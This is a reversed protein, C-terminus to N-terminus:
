RYKPQNENQRHDKLTVITPCIKPFLAKKSNDQKDYWICSEPISNISLMLNLTVFYYVLALFSHFAYGGLTPQSVNGAVTAVCVCVCVYRAFLKREAKALPKTKVVVNPKLWM